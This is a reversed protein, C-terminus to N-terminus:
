LPVPNYTLSGVLNTRLKGLNELTASVGESLCFQLLKSLSLFATKLKWHILHNTHLWPKKKKLVLM